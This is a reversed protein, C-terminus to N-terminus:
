LWGDSCALGGDSSSFRNKPSKQCKNYGSYWIKAGEDSSDAGRQFIGPAVGTESQILM